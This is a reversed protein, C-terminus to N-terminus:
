EQSRAVFAAALTLAMQAEGRTYTDTGGESNGHHALHTYHRLCAWLAAEREPKQQKTRDNALSTLAQNLNSATGLKHTGLEEMVTRCAAVSGIYDGNRFREEALRLHDAIPHRESGNEVLPLPVEFLLISRAGCSGLQKIWESRPVPHTTRESISQHGVSGTGAGYFTLTFSLDGMGRLADLAALQNPQIPVTLGPTLRGQYQTPRIEIPREPTAWGIYAEGMEGKVHVRASYITASSSPSQASPPMTIDLGIMLEYAGLIQRLSIGQIRLDAITFSDISLGM